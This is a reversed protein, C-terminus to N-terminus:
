NLEGSLAEMMAKQVCEMYVAKIENKGWGTKNELQKYFLEQVRSLVKMELKNSM